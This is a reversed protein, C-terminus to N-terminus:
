AAEAKSDDDSDEVGIAALFIRKAKPTARSWLALLKGAADQHKDTEIPAALGTILRASGINKARGEAIAQAIVLQDDPTERALARLQAANDALSTARLIGIVEPSLISTLQVAREVTRKSLGTRLSVDGSFATIPDLRCETTKIEGKVKKSKRDGGHATEPYVRLWAAKREAMFIARDIASLERRMLNEDIEVIRAQDSTMEARVEADITEHGLSTVAAVRHAGAVLAFRDGDPRVIVPTDLGHENITAALAEVWAPDVPRLRDGLDLLSLPISTIARM